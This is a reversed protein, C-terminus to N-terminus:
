GTDTHSAAARFFLRARGEIWSSYMTLRILFYNWFAENPQVHVLIVQDGIPRDAVLRGAAWGARPVRVAPFSSGFFM